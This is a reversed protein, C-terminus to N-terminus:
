GTIGSSSGAQDAKRYSISRPVPIVQVKQAQVGTWGALDWRSGYDSSSSTRSGIRADFVDNEIKM